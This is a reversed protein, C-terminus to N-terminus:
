FHYNGSQERSIDCAASALDMPSTVRDSWATRGGVVVVRTATADSWRRETWSKFGRIREASAHKLRHILPRCVESAMAGIASRTTGTM